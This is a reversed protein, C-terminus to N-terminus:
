FTMSRGGDQGQSMQWPECRPRQPSFTSHSYIVWIPSPGRARPPKKKRAPRELRILAERGIDPKHAHHSNVCGSLEVCFSITRIFRWPTGLPSPEGDDGLMQDGYCLCLISGGFSYAKKHAQKAAHTPLAVLTFYASGYLM